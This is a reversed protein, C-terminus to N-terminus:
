GELTLGALCLVPTQDSLPDGYDRFYLNLGNRSTFRRERYSM